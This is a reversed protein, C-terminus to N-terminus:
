SWIATGTLGILFLVAGVLALIAPWPARRDADSVLFVEPEPAAAAVPVPVRAQGRWGGRPAPSNGAGADPGSGTGPGEPPASRGPGDPAASHSPGDPPAALTSVRAVGVANEAIRRLRAELGAASPRAAPDKALLDLIVSSLPGPRRPQDPEDSAAAVLAGPISDRAFPPRGETAAYLTAGLSWLDAEPGTPIRRLREPAIFYPSGVLTEAAFDTGDTAALGFDTLVVRGDTGLLVNHPKVDRHLVGAAHAARLAALMQLGVRAAERHALPGDEEVAEHLSRSEVHEMVIWSRGSWWVVDFIKVVNPHHLRAAARAEGMTRADPLGSAPATIEKVAVKRWLLEDEALWVRGMGGAGIVEILRYRGVVRDARAASGAETMVSTETMGPM